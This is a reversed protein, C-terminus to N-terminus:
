DIKNVILLCREENENPLLYEHLRYDKAFTAFVEGASEIELKIDAGKYALLAGGPRIIHEVMGILRDLPALARSVVLDCGGQPFESQFMFEEIRGQVITVNDLGLLRKAHRQFNIKKGVSEISIFRVGPRAIALPIVPVGGGSGADVVVQGDEIYKSAMLSDLVHRVVGQTDNVVATLNIKKNWRNMEQLFMIEQRLQREDLGEGSLQRLIQVLEDSM